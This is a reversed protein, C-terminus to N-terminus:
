QMRAARQSKEIEKTQFCFVTSQTEGTKEESPGQNEPPRQSSQSRKIPQQESEASPRAGTM